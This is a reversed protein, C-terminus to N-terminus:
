KRHPYSGLVKKWGNTARVTQEVQHLAKKLGPESKHGVM